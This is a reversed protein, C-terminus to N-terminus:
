PTAPSRRTRKRECRPFHQDLDHTSLFQKEGGPAPKRMERVRGEAVAKVLTRLAVARTSIAIARPEWTQAQDPEPASRAGALTRRLESLETLLPALAAAIACRVVDGLPDSASM